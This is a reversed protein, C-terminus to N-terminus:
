VIPLDKARESEAIHIEQFDEAHQPVEEAQQCLKTVLTMEGAYAAVLWLKMSHGAQSAFEHM